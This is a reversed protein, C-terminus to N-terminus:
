RCRTCRGSGNCISCDKRGTGTCINCIGDGSCVICRSIYSGHDYLGGKCATCKGRLCQSGPCPFSGNGSCVHCKKTGNCSYCVKATSDSSSKSSNSSGTFSPSIYGTNGYSYGGSSSNSGSNYNYGSTTGATSTQSDEARSPSLNTISNLVMFACLAITIYKSKKGYYQLNCLTSIVMIVTLVIDVAICLGMTGENWLIMSLVLNLVFLVFPAFPHHISDIIKKMASVENEFNRYSPSRM